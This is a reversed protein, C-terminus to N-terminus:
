EMHYYHGKCVPLKSYSHFWPIQCKCYKMTLNQLGNTMCAEMTYLYHQESNLEKSSNNLTMYNDRSICNQEHKIDMKTVAVYTEVSVPLRIINSLDFVPQTYPEHIITVQYKSIADKQEGKGNRFLPIKNSYTLGNGQCLDFKSNYHLSNMTICNGCYMNNFINYSWREYDTKEQKKRHLTIQINDAPHVAYQLRMTENNETMKNIIEMENKMTLNAKLIDIDNQLNQDINLHGQIEDYNYMSVDMAM